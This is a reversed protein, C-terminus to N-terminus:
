ASHHIPSAKLAAKLEDLQIPVVGVRECVLGASTNAVTCMDRADLGAALCLGAVAIVTDGAGSVDAVQRPKYAPSLFHQKKDLYFIGKDSLTILTITNELHKSIELAHAHIEELTPGHDHQVALADALERWNPKFLTCGLYTFFNRRKPDVVTPTGAKRAADLITKIVQKTLTGKDYDQFIIVDADRMAEQVGAILQKADKSNISETTEHDIRLMQQNRSLVRTKETTIRSTSRIISRSDIGHEELLTTFRHAEDDDGIVSFLHPKGGLGKVNLAVNAAGGLRHEVKKAEVVPVPSEPSIREVNGWIYTDLMVDGLILARKGAFTELSTM